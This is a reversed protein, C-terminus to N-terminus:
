WLFRSIIGVGEEFDLCTFAPSSHVHTQDCRTEAVSGVFIAPCQATIIGSSTDPSKHQTRPMTPSMPSDRHTTEPDLDFQILHDEEIGVESAEPLFFYPIISCLTGELLWAPKIEM